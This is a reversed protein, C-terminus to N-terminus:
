DHIYKLLSQQNEIVDFLGASISIPIKARINSRLPNSPGPDNTKKHNKSVDADFLPYNGWFFFPGIKSRYNGLIRNIFISGAQTNEIIWTKPKLIKILAITDEVLQMSPVQKYEDMWPAMVKFFEICPPSATILDFGKDAEDLFKLNFWLNSVDCCITPDLDPNNDVSIIEWEGSLHFQQEWGKLGSFLSLMRKM